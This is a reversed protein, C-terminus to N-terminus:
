IQSLGKAMRKATAGATADEELEMDEKEGTGESNDDSSGLLCDGIDHHHTHCNAGEALLKLGRSDLEKRVLPDYNVGHISAKERIRKDCVISCAEERTLFQKLKKAKSNPTGNFPCCPSSPTTYGAHAHILRHELQKLVIAIQQGIPWQWEYQQQAQSLEDWAHHLATFEARIPILPESFGCVIHKWM